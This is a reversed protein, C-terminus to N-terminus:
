RIKQDVAVPVGAAGNVTQRVSIRAARFTQEIFDAARSRAQPGPELLAQASRCAREVAPVTILYRLKELVARTDSSDEEVLGCGLRSVHQANDFQDLRGPLILQPIGAQIAQATTGIGGHHVLAGARPLLLDLCAYSEHWIAVPLQPLEHALRTLFVGRVGLSEVV